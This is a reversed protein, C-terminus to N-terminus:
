MLGALSIIPMILHHPLLAAHGFYNFFQQSYYKTAAEELESAQSQPIKQYSRAALNFIPPKNGKWSQMVQVYCVVYPIREEIENM